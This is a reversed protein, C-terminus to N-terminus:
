RFFCESAEPNDDDAAPEATQIRRFRQGIFRDVYGENVALVM